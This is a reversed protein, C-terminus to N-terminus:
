AAARRRSAKVTGRLTVMRNRSGPVSGKVLIICSDDIIRAIELNLATNRKNGDQGPMKLGPLTRGPTMNCGIAGGHRKYEHTGHTDKGAGPMGWRNMVGNFGLGRTKGCVDVRQGVQFHESPKFVQGIEYKAIEEETLRFEKVTKAPQQGSKKLVGAQPKNVLKDRKAGFGLILASYGDKAKTRKGLVTCPGVQIATVPVVNGNELFIQSSGLKKGILGFNTNM